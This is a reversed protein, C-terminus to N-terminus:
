ADTPPKPVLAQWLRLGNKLRRSQGPNERKKELQFETRPLFMAQGRVEDREDDMAFQSCESISTKSLNFALATRADTSSANHAFVLDTTEGPIANHPHISTLDRGITIFIRSKREFIVQNNNCRVSCFRELPVNKEYTFMRPDTVIMPFINM